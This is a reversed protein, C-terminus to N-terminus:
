WCDNRFRERDAIAHQSWWADGPYGKATNEVRRVDIEKRQCRAIRDANAQAQAAEANLQAAAERVGQDRRIQERAERQKVITIDRQARHHAAMQDEVTPAAANANIRAEAPPPPPRPAPQKIIVKIQTGEPCYTDRYVTKGNEVCRYLDALAPTTPAALLSCLVLTRM